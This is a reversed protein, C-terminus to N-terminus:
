GKHTESLIYYRRTGYGRQLRTYDSALSCRLVSGHVELDLVFLLCM